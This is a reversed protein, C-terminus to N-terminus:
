QLVSYFLRPNLSSVLYPPPQLSPGAWSLEQQKELPGPNLEWCQHQSAWLWRRSWGLSAVAEQPRKLYECVFPMCVYLCVYIGMLVAQFIHSLRCHCLHIVLSILLFLHTGQLLMGSTFTSAWGELPSRPGRTMWHLTIKKGLAHQPFSPFLPEYYLVRWNYAGM